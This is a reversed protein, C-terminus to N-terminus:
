LDKELSIHILGSHGGLPPILVLRPIVGNAEPLRVSPAVTFKTYTYGTVYAMTVAWRRNDTEFTHGLYLTSRRYSNRYFGATWGKSQVYLGPNADNYQSPNDGGFHQSGFHMGVTTICACLTLLGM